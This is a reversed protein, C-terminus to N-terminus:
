PSVYTKETKLALLPFGPQEKRIIVLNLIYYVCITQNV